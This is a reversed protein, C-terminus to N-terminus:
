LYMQILSRRTFCNRDVYHTDFHQEHLLVLVQYIVNRKNLSDYYKDVRIIIM